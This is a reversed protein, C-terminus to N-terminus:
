FGMDIFGTEAANDGESTDCQAITGIPKVWKTQVPMQPFWTEYKFEVVKIQPPIYPLKKKSKEM